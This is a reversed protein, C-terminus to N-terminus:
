SIPHSHPDYTQRLTTADQSNSAAPYSIGLNHNPPSKTLPNKSFLRGTIAEPLPPLNTTLGYLCQESLEDSFHQFTEIQEKKLPKQANNKEIPTPPGIYKTLLEAFANEKNGITLLEVLTNEKNDIEEFSKKLQTLSLGRDRFATIYEKLLGYANGNQKALDEKIEDFSAKGLSHGFTELAVHITKITRSEAM